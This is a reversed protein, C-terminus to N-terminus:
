GQKELFSILSDTNDPYNVILSFIHNGVGGSGYGQAVIKQNNKSGPKIKLTMDGKITRVKVNTGKLVDLLSLNIDSLVHKGSSDLTMDLDEEVHIRLIADGYVNTNGGRMFMSIVDGSGVYNGGGSANITQNNQLGCPLQVKTSINQKVTGTGSCKKCDEIKKGSGNCHSCPSQMVMNGRRQTFVGVGNCMDCNDNTPKGCEGLCENCKDYRMYTIDKTVGEVSEKFSLNVLIVPNPKRKPGRSKMNTFNVHMNFDDFGGFGSSNKLEKNPDDIIQKARNIRKFRIEADKDNQNKDPHHESAKKRFAKKVEDKSASPDLELEKYAEELSSINADM